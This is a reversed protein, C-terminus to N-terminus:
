GNLLRGLEHQVRKDFTEGAKEMVARNIDTENERGFMGPTSPGFKQDIPFSKDGLREYVGVYGNKMKAIFAQKLTAGGGKKVQVKVPGKAPPMVEKPLTGKFKSLAIPGSSIDMVAGLKDSGINRTTITGRIESAPLTYAGALQRVTEAKATDAARKAARNIAKNIEAESALLSCKRMLESYKNKDFDIKLSVPM